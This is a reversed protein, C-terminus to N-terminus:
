IAYPYTYLILYYINKALIANENAMPILVICSFIFSVIRGM